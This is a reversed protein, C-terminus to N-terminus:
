TFRWKQDNTTCLIKGVMTNTSISSLTFSEWVQNKFFSIPSEAQSNTVWLDNNADLCCGGIRIWGDNTIAQLSSNNENNLNEEKEM